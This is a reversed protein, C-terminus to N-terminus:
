APDTAAIEYHTVHRDFDSLLAAAEDHVVAQDLTAGAFARVADLSSWTTAVVIETGAAVPRLLVRAGQYGAVERLEPVVRRNFYDVYRAAGDATARAAWIRAM